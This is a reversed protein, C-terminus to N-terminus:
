PNINPPNNRNEKNALKVARIRERQFRIYADEDFRGASVITSMPIVKLFSRLDLATNSQKAKRRLQRYVSDYWTTFTLEKTDKDRFGSAYPVLQVYANTAMPNPPLQSVNGVYFKGDALTMQVLENNSSADYFLQELASTHNHEHLRLLAAEVPFLLNLPWWILSGLLCALFATGSNDYPSFWQWSTELSDSKAIYAFIFLALMLTALSVRFWIERLAPMGKVRKFVSAAVFVFTTIGIIIAPIQVSSAPSTDATLQLIRLSIALLAIALIATVATKITLYRYIDRIDRIKPICLVAMSLSCIYTAASVAEAAFDIILPAYLATERVELVAIRAVVLFILGYAAAHFILRQGSCRAAHYATGNFRTYFVYGGLLPLFLLNYEM